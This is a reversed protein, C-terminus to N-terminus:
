LLLVGLDDLDHIVMKTNFGITVQPDGMKLFGEHTSTSTFGIINLHHSFLPIIMPCNYHDCIRIPLKDRPECSRYNQSWSPCSFLIYKSPCNQIILHSTILDGPSTHARRPTTTPHIGRATAHHLHSGYPQNNRDNQAQWFIHLYLDDCCQCKHSIGEGGSDSHGLATKTPEIWSIAPYNNQKSAIPMKLGRTSHLVCFDHFIM